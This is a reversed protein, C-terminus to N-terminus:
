LISSDFFHHICNTLSTFVRRWPLRNHSVRIVKRSSMTRSLSFEMSYRILVFSTITFLVKFIFGQVSLFTERMIRTRLLSRVEGLVRSALYFSELELVYVMSDRVFM